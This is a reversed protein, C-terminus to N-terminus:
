KDAKEKQSNVFAKYSKAWDYGQSDLYHEIETKYKKFIPSMEDVNKEDLSQERAQKLWAIIKAEDQPKLNPLIQRYVKLTIPLKNATLKDKISEVQEPTLDAELGAIFKKHVEPDLQLGANHADRVARLDTALVDRIREQKAADKLDLSDVLGAVRKNLAADSAATPAPALSAIIATQEPTLQEKPLPAKGFRLLAVTVGDAGVTAVAKAHFQEETLDSFKKLQGNFVVITKDNVVVARESEKGKESWRFTLSTTKDANVTRKVIDLGVTRSAPKAPAPAVVAAAANTTEAAALPATIVSSLLVAALMTLRCTAPPVNPVFLCTKMKMDTMTVSLFRRASTVAKVVKAKGKAASDPKPV